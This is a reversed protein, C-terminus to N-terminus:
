GGRTGQAPLYVFNSAFKPGLTEIIIHADIVSLKPKRCHQLPADLRPEVAMERVLKRRATNSLGRELQLPHM